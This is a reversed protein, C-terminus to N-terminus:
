GITANSRATVNASRQYSSQTGSGTGFESEDEEDDSPEMSM